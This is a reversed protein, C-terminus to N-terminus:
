WTDSQDWTIIGYQACYITRDGAPEESLSLPIPQSKYSPIKQPEHTAEQSFM